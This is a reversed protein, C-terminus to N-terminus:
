AELKFNDMKFWDYRYRLKRIFGEFRQIPLKPGHEHPKDESVPEVNQDQHSFSVRAGSTHRAEFGIARMMHLIDNWPM